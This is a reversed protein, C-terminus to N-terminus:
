LLGWVAYAMSLLGVFAFGLVTGLGLHWLTGPVTMRAMM